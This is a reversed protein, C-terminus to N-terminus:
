APPITRCRADMRFAEVRLLAEVDEKSAVLEYHTEDYTTYANFRLSIQPLLDFTAPRDPGLMRHQFMLHEALHALGAKGPPDEASGVEYRVDVQVLPTSRDPIVVLRAGNPLRARKEAYRFATTPEPASACGVAFTVASLALVRKM